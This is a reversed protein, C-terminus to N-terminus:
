EDEYGNVILEADEMNDLIDLLTLEGEELQDMTLQAAQIPTMGKFGGDTDDYSFEVAVIIKPM